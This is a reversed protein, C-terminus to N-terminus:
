ISKKKRTKDTLFPTNSAAPGTSAGMFLLALFTILYPLMLYFYYPIDYDLTQMRLQLADGAGFLLCALAAGRPKWKGFVIAAYAIFGRGASINDYFTNLGTITLSSGAIGCFAGCALVAFWRIRIVNVGAVDLAYPNEGAARLELGRSTNYLFYHVLFVGVIALYFLPNQSFLIPGVFPIDSLVPIHIPKFGVSIEMTSKMGFLFRFVTSTIGLALMNLGVASIVQNVKVKISMFAHIAALFMSGLMAFFLGGIASGTYLAGLYGFFAGMLIQGELAMNLIGSQESIVGGLIAFVLPTALRMTASYFDATFFIGLIDM